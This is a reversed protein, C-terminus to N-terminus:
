MRIAPFRETAGRPGRVVTTRRQAALPTAALVLTSLLLTSRLLPTM